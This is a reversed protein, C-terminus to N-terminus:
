TQIRDSLVWENFHADINAKEEARVQTLLRENDTHRVIHAQMQTNFIRNAYFEPWRFPLSYRFHAPFPDFIVAKPRFFLQSDYGHLRSITNFLM